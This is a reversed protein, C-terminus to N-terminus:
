ATTSIISDYYPPIQIREAFNTKHEFYQIAVFYKIVIGCFYLVSKWSGKSRLGVLINEKEVVFDVWEKM